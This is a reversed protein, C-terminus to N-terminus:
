LSKSPRGGRVQRGRGDGVSEIEDIKFPEAWIELEEAAQKSNESLSEIPNNTGSHSNPHLDFDPIHRRWRDEALCRLFRVKGATHIDLRHALYLPVTLPAGEVPISVLGGNRLERVVAPGGAFALGIGQRVAEILGDHSGSEM